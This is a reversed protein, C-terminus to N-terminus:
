GTGMYGHYKLETNIAMANDRDIRNSAAEASDMYEGSEMGDLYVGQDEAYGEMYEVYEPRMAEMLAQADNAALATVIERITGRADNWADAGVAEFLVNINRQKVISETFEIINM